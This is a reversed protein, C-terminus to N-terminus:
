KTTIKGNSEIKFKTIDQSIIKTQDHEYLKYNTKVSTITECNEIISKTRQYNGIGTKSNYLAPTNEGVEKIDIIILDENFTLIYYSFGSLLVLTTIKCNKFRTKFVRFSNLDTSDLFPNVYEGSLNALNKTLNLKFNKLLENTDSNDKLLDYFEINITDIPTIYDLPNKEVQACVYNSFYIIAFIAIITKM